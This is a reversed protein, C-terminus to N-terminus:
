FISESLPFVGDFGVHLINVLRCSFLNDSKRIELYLPPEMTQAISFGVRRFRTTVYPLHNWTTQATNLRNM